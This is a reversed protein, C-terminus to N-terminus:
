RITLLIEIMQLHIGFSAVKLNSSHIGFAETTIQSKIVLNKTRLNYEVQKQWVPRLPILLKPLNLSKFVELVLKQSNRVHITIGAEKM